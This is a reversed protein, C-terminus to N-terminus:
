FKEALWFWAEKPYASSYIMKNENILTKIGIYMGWLLPLYINKEEIRMIKETEKLLLDKCFMHERLM